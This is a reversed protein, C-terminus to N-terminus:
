HLNMKSHGSFFATFIAMIASFNDKQSTKISEHWASASLSTPQETRQRIFGNLLRLRSM